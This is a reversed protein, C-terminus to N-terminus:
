AVRLVRCTMIHKTRSIFINPLEFVINITPTHLPLPLFQTPLLGIPPWMLHTLTPDYFTTVVISIYTYKLGPNANPVDFDTPSSSPHKITMGRTVPTPPKLTYTDNTSYLRTYHCDIEILYSVFHPRVM